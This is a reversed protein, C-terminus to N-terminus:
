RMDKELVACHLPCNTTLKRDFMLRLQIQPLFAHTGPGKQKARFIRHVLTSHLIRSINPTLFTNVNMVKM